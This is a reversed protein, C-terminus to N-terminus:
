REPESTCVCGVVIDSLLKRAFVEVMTDPAPATMVFSNRGGVVNRHFYHVVTEDSGLVVGNITIGMQVVQDRGPAADEGVNDTGNGVINLVSHESRYPATRLLGAGILLANSLDTPEGFRKEVRRLHEEIARNKVVEIRIQLAVRRADEETEIVTWPVLPVESVHWGFMAFGIRGHPGNRISQIVEPAVLALAMGDQVLAHEEVTMSHSFDLGTVINVDTVPQAAVYTSFALSVLPALTSVKTLGDMVAEKATPNAGALL